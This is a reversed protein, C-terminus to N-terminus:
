RESRPNKIEKKIPWVHEPVFQSRPGSNAERNKKTGAMIIEPM